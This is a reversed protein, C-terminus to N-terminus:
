ARLAPEIEEALDHRGPLGARVDRALDRIEHSLLVLVVQGCPDLDGDALGETVRVAARRVAQAVLVPAHGEVRGAGDQHVVLEVRRADALGLDEENPTRPQEERAVIRVLEGVEDVARGRAARRGEAAIRIQQRRHPLLGDLRAVRDDERAAVRDRGEAGVGQQVGRDGQM